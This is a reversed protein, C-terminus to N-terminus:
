LVLRDCVFPVNRSVQETVLRSERQRLNSRNSALRDIDSSTYTPGHVTALSHGAHTHHTGYYGMSAQM